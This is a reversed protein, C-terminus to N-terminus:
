CSNWCTTSRGATRATRNSSRFCSASKTASCRAVARRGRPGADLEHQRALTNIEGNHSMFRNPQARDWSPFTNTSFRSHVMALHTTYDPDKLDPYYDLVQWSMLMGKYISSRRRCAASTSCRPRSCRVTVACCTAPASASSTCSDSSHTARCGRGRRWSCSSLTRNARLATPGVQASRRTRPCRAGASWGSDRSPLSRSWWAAQVAAARRALQPLSCSVPRLSGRNRCSPGCTWRHGGEAPVRAALGDVHGCRRGHQSRLWVGRSPGHQAAGPRRRARDPSQARGKIHAVFGSAM